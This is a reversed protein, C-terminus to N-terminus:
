RALEWETPIPIYGLNHAARSPSVDLFLISLSLGGMCKMLGPEEQAPSHFKREDISIHFACCKVIERIFYHCLLTSSTLNLFGLIRLTRLLVRSCAPPLPLLRLVSRQCLRLHTAAVQSRHYHRSRSWSSAPRHAAKWSPLSHKFGANCYRSRPQSRGSHLLGSAGGSGV